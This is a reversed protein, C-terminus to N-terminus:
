AGAFGERCWRRLNMCSGAIFSTSWRLKKIGHSTTHASFPATPWAAACRRMRRWVNCRRRCALLPKMPHTVPVKIGCSEDVVGAFGCHDLCVIPLGMAMAEITVTSTLDRLSTILMVHAEAMVKLAAERELWGHFYCRDNLGLDSAQAQWATTRPGKGLVHLEWPVNKPLAALADLGLNLAKRPTHLGTWVIRLPEDPLRVSPTVSLGALPLGVESM